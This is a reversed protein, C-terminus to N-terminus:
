KCTKVKPSLTIKDYTFYPLLHGHGYLYVMGDICATGYQYQQLIVEPNKVKPQLKIVGVITGVACALCITALCLSVVVKEGM